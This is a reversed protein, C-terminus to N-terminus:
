HQFKVTQHRDKKQAFSTSNQQIVSRVQECRATSKMKQTWFSSGRENPPPGSLMSFQRHTPRDDPHQM